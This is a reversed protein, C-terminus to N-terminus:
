NGQGFPLQLFIDDILTTSQAIIAVNPPQRLEGELEQLKEKLQKLDVENFENKQKQMNGTRQALDNLKKEIKLLFPRSYNIWRKRCQESTQKIKDISNKEWRDIQEIITHTKPDTRRDNLDERLKNHDHQIQNLQEELNSRHQALDEFCFRKSCGHCPYTLKKTNCIICITRDATTTM